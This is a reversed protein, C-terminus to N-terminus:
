LTGLTLLSIAAAMVRAVLPHGNQGESRGLSVRYQLRYDISKLVYGLNTRDECFEDGFCNNDEMNCEM